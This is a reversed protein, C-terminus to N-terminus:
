FHCLERSKQMHRERRGAEKAKGAQKETEAPPMKQDRNRHSVNELFSTPVDTPNLHLFSVFVYFLRFRFAECGNCNIFKALVSMHVM